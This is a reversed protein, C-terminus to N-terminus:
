GNELNDITKLIYNVKEISIPFDCNNDCYSTDIITEILSLANNEDKEWPEYLYHWFTGFLLYKSTKLNQIWKKDFMSLNDIILIFYQRLIRIRTSPSYLWFSCELDDYTPLIDIGNIWRAVNILPSNIGQLRRADYYLPPTMGLNIFSSEYNTWFWNDGNIAAVLEFMGISSNDYNSKPLISPPFVIAYAEKLFLPKYPEYESGFQNCIAEIQNQKKQSLCVCIQGFLSLVIQRDNDELM